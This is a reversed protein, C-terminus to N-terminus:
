QQYNKTSQAQPNGEINAFDMFEKGKTKNAIKM